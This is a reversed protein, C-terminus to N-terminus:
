LDANEIAGKWVGCFWGQKASYKASGNGTAGMEEKM